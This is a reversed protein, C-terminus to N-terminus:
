VVPPAPTNSRRPAREVRVASRWASREAADDYYKNAVAGKIENIAANLRSILDAIEAGSSRKTDHATNAAAISAEVTNIVENLRDIFNEPMEFRIFENRLPAADAAFARAAALLRSVSRGRPVRFKDNLGSISISMSRATGAM